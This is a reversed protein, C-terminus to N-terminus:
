AYFTGDEEWQEWPYYYLCYSNKVCACPQGVIIEDWALAEVNALALDSM